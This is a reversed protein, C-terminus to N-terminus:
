IYHTDMDAWSFSMIFVHGWTMQGRQAEAQKRSEIQHSDELNVTEWWSLATWTPNKVSRM